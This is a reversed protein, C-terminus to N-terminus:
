LGNPNSQIQIFEKLLTIPARMSSKIYQYMLLPYLVCRSYASHREIAYKPLDFLKRIIGDCSLASLQRAGIILAETNEVRSM